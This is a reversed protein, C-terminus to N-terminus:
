QAHSNRLFSQSHPRNLHLKDLNTLNSEMRLIYHLMHHHILFGNGHKDFRNRNGRLPYPTMIMYHLFIHKKTQISEIHHKNQLMHIRYVIENEGIHYHHHNNRHFSQYLITNWPLRDAQNRVMPLTSEM